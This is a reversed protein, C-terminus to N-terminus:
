RRVDRVVVDTGTVVAPNLAVVSYLPGGADTLELVLGARVAGGSPRLWVAATGTVDVQTVSDGPVTVDSATATGDAAVKTVTVRADAGVAALVLGARTVAPVPTGAVGDIPESAAAWALDSPGNGDARRETMAAAVMPQDSKVQVAYTGPPLSGIAIDRVAGAPVRVVSDQPLSIPGDPTLARTQVVAEVTGPVLVRVMAPGSVPVAAILHETAPAPTSAVDDSGRGVAGEIWSDQMVAAVVGGSAVVHVAPSAEGPAIADLLVVTRGRPPVALRSSSTAAIIGQRGYVTVDVTLTNAGPNAIVLRERRTTEGAGALLWHSDRPVQCATAILARDDSDTRLWTQLGAMAPALGDAGTISASANGSLTGSITRGRETSTGIEPGDPLGRTSLQGAAPTVMGQVAAAPATAALVTTTGGAVAPVGALGETEPGPCVLSATRVPIGVPTSPAAAVVPAGFHVQGSAASGAFVIGGAVAGAGAARLIRVWPVSM